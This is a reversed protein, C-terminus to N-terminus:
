EILLRPQIARDELRETESHWQLRHHLEKYVNRTCAAHPLWTARIVIYHVNQTGTRKYRKQTMSVFLFFRNAERKIFILRVHPLTQSAACEYCRFQFQRRGKYYTQWLRFASTECFVWDLRFFVACPIHVRYHMCLIVLRM